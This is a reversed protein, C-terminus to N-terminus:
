DFSRFSHRLMYIVLHLYAITHILFHSFSYNVSNIFLYISSYISLYIYINAVLHLVLYYTFSYTFVVFTICLNIFSYNCFNILSAFCNSFLYILVYVFEHM